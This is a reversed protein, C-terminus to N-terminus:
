HRNQSADWDSSWRILPLIAAGLASGIESLRYGGEDDKEVLGAEGLEKLRDYLVSSSMGDCRQRLDRAGISGDRLEWILRLAWRRGLLDLAAMVPRGTTSGRVPKGPKPVLSM